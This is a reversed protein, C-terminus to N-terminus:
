QTDEVSIPEDRITGDISLHEERPACFTDCLELSDQRASMVFACM